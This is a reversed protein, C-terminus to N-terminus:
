NYLVREITKEFPTMRVVSDVYAEYCDQFSVGFRKKYHTRVNPVNVEHLFDSIERSMHKPFWRTAMESVYRPTQGIEKTYPM